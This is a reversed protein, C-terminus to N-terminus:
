NEILDIFQKETCNNPVRTSNSNMDMRKWLDKLSEPKIQKYFEESRPLGMAVMQCSCYTEGWLPGLCACINPSM